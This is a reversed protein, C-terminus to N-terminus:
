DHNLGKLYYDPYTEKNIFEDFKNTTYLVMILIITPFVFIFYLAIFIYKLWILSFPVFIIPFLSLMLMSGLISPGITKIYFFTGNRLLSKFNSIYTNNLFMIWIFIPFIILLFILIPAYSIIPVAFLLHIFYSIIYFICCILFFLANKAINHKVGSNFDQRFFIGEQWVFNRLIHTIGSLAVLILFSFILIGVNYLAFFVIKTEKIADTAISMISVYYFDMFLSFAILPLSFVFLVLGCKLLLAFNMKYCDLFEAKRTRPLMAKSYDIRSAKQKM